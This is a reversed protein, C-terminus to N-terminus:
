RREFTIGAARQEEAIRLLEAVHAPAPPAVPLHDGQPQFGFENAIYRVVILNGNPDVFQYSGEMNIQGEAGVTGIASEAHGNSLEVNVSFSGDDQINREDLLVEVEDDAINARPLAVIRPEPEIVAVVPEEEVVEVVDVVDVVEEEQPRALAVALLCALIASINSADQQTMHGPM